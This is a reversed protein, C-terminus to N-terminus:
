AQGLIRALEAERADKLKFTPNARVVKETQAYIEDDSLALDIADGHPQAVHWPPIRIMNEADTVYIGAHGLQPKMSIERIHTHPQM